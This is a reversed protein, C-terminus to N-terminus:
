VSEKVVPRPTVYNLINFIVATKGLKFAVPVSKSQRPYGDADILLLNEAM